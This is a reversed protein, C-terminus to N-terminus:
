RLTVTGFLKLSNRIIEDFIQGYKNKIELFNVKSGLIMSQRRWEYKRSEINLHDKAETISASLLPFISGSLDLPFFNEDNYKGVALFLSMCFSNVPFNFELIHM